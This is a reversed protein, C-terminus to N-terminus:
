GMEFEFQPTGLKVVVGKAAGVTKSESAMQKFFFVAVCLPPHTLVAFTSQGRKCPIQQM